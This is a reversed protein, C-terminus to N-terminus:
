KQVHVFMWMNTTKKWYHRPRTGLRSNIIKRYNCPLRCFAFETQERQHADVTSAQLQNCWLICNTPGNQGANLQAISKFGHTINEFCSILISFIDVRGVLLRALNYYKWTAPSKAELVSGKPRFRDPDPCRSDGSDSNESKLLTRFFWWPINGGCGKSGRFRLYIGFIITQFIHSRKFIAM